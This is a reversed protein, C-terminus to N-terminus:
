AATERSIKFQRGTRRSWSVVDGCYLNRYLVPRSPGEPNHKLSYIVWHQENDLADHKPRGYKQLFILTWVHTSHSLDIHATALMDVHNLSCCHVAPTPSNVIKAFRLDCHTSRPSLLTQPCAIDAQSFPFIGNHSMHQSVTKLCNPGQLLTFLYSNHRSIEIYPSAGVVREILYTWPEKLSLVIANVM